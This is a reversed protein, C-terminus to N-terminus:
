HVEVKDKAPIYHQYSLKIHLLARYFSCQEARNIKHAM